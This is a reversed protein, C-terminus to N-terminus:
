DIVPSIDDLLQALKTRSVTITDDENADCDHLTENLENEENVTDGVIKNPFPMDVMGPLHQQTWLAGLINWVFARDHPEDEWNDIFKFFHRLSSDIYCHLPIRKEWNHEGYKEAGDEYQRSVEMIMVPVSWGNLAAFLYLSDYLCRPEGTQIYEDIHYLINAQEQTEMMPIVVSLPLLDCRGKGEAIDRVAGSAFERRSGSDLITAM